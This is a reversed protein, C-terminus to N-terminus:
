SPDIEPLFNDGNAASRVMCLENGARPPSSATRRRVPEPLPPPPPLTELRDGTADPPLPPCCNWRAAPTPPPPQATWPATLRDSGAGASPRNARHGDWSGEPRRWRASRGVPAKQRHPSSGQAPAQCRPTNVSVVTHKTDKDNSAGRVASRMVHSVIKQKHRNDWVEHRVRTSCFIARFLSLCSM